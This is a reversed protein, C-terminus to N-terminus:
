KRERIKKIERLERLKRFVDVIDSAYNDKIYFPIFYNDEGYIGDSSSFRFRDEDYNENRIANIVSELVAIAYKRLAEYQKEALKEPTIELLELLYEDKM